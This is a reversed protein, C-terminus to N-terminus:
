PCTTLKGIRSPHWNLLDHPLTIARRIKDRLSRLTLCLAKYRLSM